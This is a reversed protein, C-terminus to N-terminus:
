CSRDFVVRAQLLDINDIDVFEAVISARVDPMSQLVACTQVVIADAEDSSNPSLVIISRASSVSCKRMDQQCMVHGQRTVIKSKRNDKITAHIQADMNAKDENALIVIAKGGESANAFTLQLILQTTYPTWGLILTHGSEIVQGGRKIKEVHNSISDTVLGVLIAILLMGVMTLPVGVWRRRISEESAHAGSDALMSWAIWVEEALGHQSDDPSVIVFAVAGVFIMVITCAMFIGAKALPHTTFFLELAYTVKEGLTVKHKSPMSFMRHLKRPSNPVLCPAHRKHAHWARLLVVAVAILLGFGAVTTASSAFMSQLLNPLDFLSAPSKASVKSAVTAGATLTIAASVVPWGHHWAKPGNSSQCM